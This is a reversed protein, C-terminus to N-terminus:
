TKVSFIAFFLCTAIWTIPMLMGTYTARRKLRNGLYANLGMASVNSSICLIIMPAIGCLEKTASYDVSWGTYYDLVVWLLSWLSFVAIAKPWSM